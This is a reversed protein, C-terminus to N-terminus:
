VEQTQLQSGQKHQSFGSNQLCTAQSILDEPNIILSVTGDAMVAGGTFCHLHDDPLSIDKMVLQKIGELRDILFATDKDGVSLILIIEYADVSSKSGSSIIDELIHLPIIRENLKFYFEKDNASQIQVNKKQITSKVNDIPIVLRHQGSNIVFGTMIQTTAELPMQIFFSTGKGPKTQTTIKGGADDLSKKVVDMGVGRGSIDTVASATSVGSHFMVDICHKETFEAQPAILGLEIAKQRMAEMNIGAGDDSLEIEVFDKKITADLVINGTPDKGLEERKDQAEIGHDAANRIMHVLPSELKEVIAKDVLLNDNHITLKIKKETKSAIDHVIKPMRKFLQSIPVKRIEMISKQLSRSLEGFMETAKKLQRQHEKPDFNALSVASTLNTYLEKVIILEGVYELFVDVSKESIRITKGASSQPASPKDTDKKPADQLNKTDPPFKLLLAKVDDLFLERMLPDLGVTSLVLELKDCLANLEEKFDPDECFSDLSKLAQLSQHAAQEDLVASGPTQLFEFLKQVAEIHDWNKDSGAVVTSQTQSAATEAQAPQQLSEYKDILADLSKKNSQVDKLESLIQTALAPTLANSGAQLFSEMETVSHAFDTPMEASVGEQQIIHFAEQLSGTCSILLNILADSVPLEKKRLKDLLQELKHSFDKIIFLSFYAANGKISHFVRFVRQILDEDFGQQQLAIFADTAALLEDQSEDIFGSLVDLDIEYEKETSM